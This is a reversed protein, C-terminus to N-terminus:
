LDLVLKGGKARSVCICMTGGADHEEASMTADRHDVAGDIVVQTCSGCVGDMCGFEANVNNDLLVDLISKDDPVHLTMGSRALVVDFGDAPADLKATDASFREYHVRSPPWGSTQALMATLLGEPGCFYVQTDTGAGALLDAIDFLGDRDDLHLTLAEGLGLGKLISDFGAAEANRALYIFRTPKGLAILRRTMPVLPTAGIGGAILIYDDAAEDLTFNNRIDGIEISGGPQLNDHLWKSGGRGSAEGKVGIEAWSGDAAWDWLSYQRILGNPLFLDLHAGPTAGAFPTGPASLRFSKIERGLPTVADIRATLRTM